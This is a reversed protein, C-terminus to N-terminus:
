QVEYDYFYFDCLTYIDALDHTYKWIVTWKKNMKVFMEAFLLQLVSWTSLRVNQRNKIREQHRMAGWCRVSTFVFRLNYIHSKLRPIVAHQM